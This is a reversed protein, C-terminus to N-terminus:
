AVQPINLDKIRNSPMLWSYLLLAGFAMIPIAYYRLYAWRPIPGVVVFDAADGGRKKRPISLWAGLVGGIVLAIVVQFVHYSAGDGPSASWTSSPIALLLGGIPVCVSFGLIVARRRATLETLM